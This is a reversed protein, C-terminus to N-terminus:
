QIGACVEPTDAVAGLKKHDAFKSFVCETGEDLDHIFLSFLVPGLESGQPADSTVPGWSPEADRIVARQARGAMGIEIWGVTGEGSVCQRLKQILINHSVAGFAKSLDLCVVDM